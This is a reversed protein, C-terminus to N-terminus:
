PSDVSPSEAGVGNDTDATTFEGELGPNTTDASPPPTGAQLPQQYVIGM